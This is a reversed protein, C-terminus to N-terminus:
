LACGLPSRGLISRSLASGAHPNQGCQRDQRSQHYHVFGAVEKGGRPLANPHAAKGDAKARHQELALPAAHLKGQPGDGQPAKHGEGIVVFVARNGLVVGVQQAVAGQGLPGQHNGGAHEGVQQEGPGYQDGLAVQHPNGRSEAGGRPHQYRGHLGVLGCLGSAEFCAIADQGQGALLEGAALVGDGIQHAGDFSRWLAGQRQQCFPIALLELEFEGGAIQAPHTADAGLELGIASFGEPRGLARKFGHPLGAM